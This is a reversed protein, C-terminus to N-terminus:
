DDIGTGQDTDGRTIKHNKVVGNEDFVVVLSHTYATGSGFGLVHGKAGRTWTYFWATDNNLTKTPDGFELIIDNKTTVGDQIKDTQEQTIETGHKISKYGCGTLIFFAGSIVIAIVIIKRSM